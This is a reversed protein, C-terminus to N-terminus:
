VSGVIRPTDTLELADVEGAPGLPSSAHAAAVMASAVDRAAQESPTECFVQLHKNMGVRPRAVFHRFRSAGPLTVIFFQDDM